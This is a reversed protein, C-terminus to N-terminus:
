SVKRSVHKDLRKTLQYHLVISSVILVVVYLAVSTLGIVVVGKLVIPYFISYLIVSGISGIAIAMSSWIAVEKLYLTFIHKQSWGITRFTKIENERVKLLSVLSEVLTIASLIYTSITLLISLRSTQLNVFEGLLTASTQEATSSLSIYVFSAMLSVFLFQIFSPQIHKKFFLLNKWVLSKMKNNGSTPVVKKNQTMKNSKLQIFLFVVVATVIVTGGYFFYLNMDLDNYDKMWWILPISTIAAVFVLTLMEGQSLKNIHKKQWGLQSLLAIDKQSHVEWFQMRNVLYAFIVILFLIALIGNTLSWESIITGAAGLTTWSEQVAGIGEVDVALQQPSAGAVVTVILGMNEIEKAVQKIKEAAANTYETIGAVKVRIADIPEAGKILQASQINTIGEAPPSIFSGPTITATLETAQGTNEDKYIVPDFQYIGLPSSALQKEKEDIELTDIPDLYWTARNLQEKGEQAEFLADGIQQIERYIPVGNEEGIKNLSLKGDKYIYNLYGAQYYKILETYDHLSGYGQEVLTSMEGDRTLFLGDTNQLFPNLYQTLDISYTQEKHGNIKLLSEVFKDYSERTKYVEDYNELGQEQLYDEIMIELDSSTIELSEAHIDAKLGSKSNTVEIIPVSEANPLLKILANGRNKKPNEPNIADFSLNTLKEEEIPDIAVLLHYTTPLIFGAHGDSCRNFLDYDNVEYFQEGNPVQLELCAYEPGVKYVNLGDTTTYQMMYRNNDNELSEVYIDNKVPAFYGLSAVPAAIDVDEHNKIAEWLEMSIGGRGFGIYNEPVIGLQEELPHIAEQPRVLLDYSGRAYHKVDSEVKQHINQISSFTLPEMVFIIVISLIFLLSYLKQRKLKKFFLKNM